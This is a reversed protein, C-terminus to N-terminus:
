LITESCWTMREIDNHALDLFELGEPWPCTEVNDRHGPKLVFKNIKNHSVDVRSLRPLSALAELDLTELANHSLCLTHVWAASAVSLAPARLCAAPFDRM